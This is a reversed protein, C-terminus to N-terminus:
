RSTAFAAASGIVTKTGLIGIVRWVNTIPTLHAALQAGAMWM